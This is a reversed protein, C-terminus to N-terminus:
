GCIWNGDEDIGKISELLPCSFEKLKISISDDSISTTLNGLTIIEFSSSYSTANITQGAIIIQSFARTPPIDSSAPLAFIGLVGLLVFGGLVFFFFSNLNPKRQKLKM